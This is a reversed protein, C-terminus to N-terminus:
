GVPCFPAEPPVFAVPAATYSCGRYFKSLCAASSGIWLPRNKTRGPNASLIFRCNEEKSGDAVTHHIPSYLNVSYVLFLRRLVPTGRFYLWMSYLSKAPRDPTRGTRRNQQLVFFKLDLNKRNAKTQGKATSYIFLYSLKM